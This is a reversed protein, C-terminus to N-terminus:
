VPLTAWASAVSRKGTLELADVATRNWTFLYLDSATGRLCASAPGSGERVRLQGGGVDVIWADDSDSCALCLTGGLTAEPTEPVDIQLHVRLLEDIGDVALDTEIPTPDGGTLEGDVRHVATELAMRRAVWRVNLDRGSWNWCPSEPGADSLEDVLGAAADELWDGPPESAPISREGPDKRVSEDAVRVQAQWFTHVHWVHDILDRGTWEPCSPVKLDLSDATVAALRVAESSIAELYRDFSALKSV